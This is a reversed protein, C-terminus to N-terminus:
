ACRECEPNRRDNESWSRSRSMVYPAIFPACVGATLSASILVKTLMVGIHYVKAQGPRAYIKDKPTRLCINFSVDRLLRVYPHSVSIRQPGPAIAVAPLTQM